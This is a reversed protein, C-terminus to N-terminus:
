PQWAIIECNAPVRGILHSFFAGHGVVVIGVVFPLLINNLLWLLM